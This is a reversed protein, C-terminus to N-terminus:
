ENPFFLEREETYINPENIGNKEYQKMLIDYRARKYESLIVM